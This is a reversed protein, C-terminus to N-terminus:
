VKYKNLNNGKTTLIIDIKPSPIKLIGRESANKYRICVVKGEYRIIEGDETEFGDKEFISVKTGIPFKMM